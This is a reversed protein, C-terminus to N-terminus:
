IKEPAAGSIVIIFTVLFCIVGIIVKAFLSNNTFSLKFKPKIKILQQM